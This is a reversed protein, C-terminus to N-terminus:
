RTFVLEKASSLQDDYAYDMENFFKLDNVTSTREQVMFRAFAGRAKKAFFAIVKLKGNKEDKFVIDIVDGNFQKPNVAKFYENSALNILLKPTIGKLDENLQHTIKNGWYTYLNNNKKTIEWRTGMELRYPQMLDMPKLVGYLGSLIRIHNQAYEIDAKTLQEVDFGTYVDGNFAYIAQKTNAASGNNEWNKYRQYNLDTLNDSLHMLKSLKAKSMKGLKNALYNAEEAFVPNQKIDYKAPSEFDLTKAPSLVAIM